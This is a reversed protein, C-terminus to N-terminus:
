GMLSALLKGVKSKANARSRPTLFRPLAVASLLSTIVVVVMLGL